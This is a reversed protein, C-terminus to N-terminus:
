AWCRRTRESATGCVHWGREPLGALSARFEAVEAVGIHNLRLSGFPKKLHNDFVNKKAAAESPKNKRGFRRAPLLARTSENADDKPLALHSPEFRRSKGSSAHTSSPCSSNRNACAEERRQPLAGVGDRLGALGGAVCATTDTDNGLRIAARVVTEYSGASRV